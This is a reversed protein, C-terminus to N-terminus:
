HDKSFSLINCVIYWHVLAVFIEYFFLIILFSVVWYYGVEFCIGGLSVGGFVGITLNIFPRLILVVPRILYSLTEALCVFPSIWLPTGVPLFSSFFSNMGLGFVRFFFLSVFIPFVLYILLIGFGYIGYLYPVRLCLFCILLLFLCRCYVKVNSLNGGIFGVVIDYVVNLHSLFM